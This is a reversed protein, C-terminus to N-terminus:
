ALEDNEGEDTLARLIDQLTFLIWMLLITSISVGLCISVIFGNMM